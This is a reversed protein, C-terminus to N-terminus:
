TDDPLDERSIRKARRVAALWRLAPGMSTIVWTKDTGPANWPQARQWRAIRRLEASLGRPLGQVKSRRRRGSSGPVADM